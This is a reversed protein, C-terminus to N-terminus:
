AGFITITTAATGTDNVRIGPIPYVVGATLEGDAWSTTTSGDLGVVVLSTDAEGAGIMLGFFAFPAEVTDSPTLKYTQNVQLLNSM